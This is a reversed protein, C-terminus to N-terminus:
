DSLSLKRAINSKIEAKYSKYTNEGMGYIKSSNYGIGKGIDNIFIEALAGGSIEGAGDFV